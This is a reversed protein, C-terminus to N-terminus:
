NRDFFFGQLEPEITEYFIYKKLRSMTPAAYLAINISLPYTSPM